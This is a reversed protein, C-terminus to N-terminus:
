KLLEKKYNEMWLKRQLVLYDEYCDSLYRELKGEIIGSLHEKLFTNPLYMQVIFREETRDGNLMRGDYIKCKCHLRGNDNKFNITICGTNDYTSWTDIKSLKEILPYWDTNNKKYNLWQADIINATGLSICDVIKRIMSWSHFHINVGDLLTLLEFLKKQTM